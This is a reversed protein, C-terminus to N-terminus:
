CVPEPVGPLTLSRCSWGRGPAAARALRRGGAHRRAAASQRPEATGLRDVGAGRRGAAVGDGAHRVGHLRQAGARPLARGAPLHPDAAHHRRRVAPELRRRAAGHGVLLGHRRPRDRRRHGRLGGDRANRRDHVGLREVIRGSVLSPLYMALLHSQIVWKTDQESLHDMVHMSVPTATMIFSMVAYSVVGAAVAVIFTPQRVITGLPRAPGRVSEQALHSTPLRTLLLANAAFLGAAAVFSGAYHAAPVLDAARVAIEPGLWAALLAGIMVTAVARGALPAEVHETAAFRYQMVVARNLGIVFTAACFLAFSAHQIGFAAVLSAAAALLASALFVPRRGFRQMSLTAPLTGIALGVVTLSIPLTALAPVPALGAGLIGGLLVVLFSGANSLAQAMALLWVNRM